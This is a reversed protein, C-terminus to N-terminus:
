DVFTSIFVTDGLNVTAHYWMAPFYLVEGPEIVCERPMDKAALTPYTGRMWQLSSEDPDFFPAKSFKAFNTLTPEHGAPYLLWRKRGHFVESFGGGHIHFPVGTGSAGLGFSYTWVQAAGIYPPRKYLRFLPEWISADHGGFNYYTDVGLSELTQPVMLEEIYEKMSATKTLHSYTNAASLMVRVDGFAALLNSRTTAVRIDSNNSPRVFIMPQRNHIHEMFQAFTVTDADVRDINCVRHDLDPDFSADWDPESSRLRADSCSDANAAGTDPSCKPREPPSEATSRPAHVLATLLMLVLIPSVTRASSCRAVM